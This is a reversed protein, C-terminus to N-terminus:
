FLTFLGLIQVIEEEGMVASRIDVNSGNLVPPNAFFLSAIAMDTNGSLFRAATNLIPIIARAYSANEFQLRILTEYKEDQTPLLNIFIKQVPIGLPLGLNNMLRSILIAPNELWCSFPSIVGANGRFDAFGEPIEIGEKSLPDFPDGTLSSAAFAQRSGVALSLRSASSYWYSGGAQSRRKKWNKNFGLAFDAQSAPYNGWAALQFRRGSEQPFIAAALYDTRDLMQRTQSDNLEEFPLREIIPRMQKVDAVIYFLAGSELPLVSANEPDVDSM